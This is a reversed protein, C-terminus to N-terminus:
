TEPFILDTLHIDDDDLVDGDEVDLNRFLLKNAAAGARKRFPFDPPEPRKPTVWACM